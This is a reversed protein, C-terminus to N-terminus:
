LSLLRDGSVLQRALVTGFELGKAGHLPFAIAVPAQLLLMRHVLVLAVYLWGTPEADQHWLTQLQGLVFKPIAEKEDDFAGVNPYVHLLLDALEQVQFRQFKFHLLLVSRMNSLTFINQHFPPMITNAIITLLISKDKFLTELM